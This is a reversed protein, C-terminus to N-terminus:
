TTIIRTKPNKTSHKECQKANQVQHKKKVNALFSFQHEAIKPIVIYCIDSNQLFSSINADITTLCIVNGSM